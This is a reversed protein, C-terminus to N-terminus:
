SQNNAETGNRALNHGPRTLGLEYIHEQIFHQLYSNGGSSASVDSPVYGLVSTDNGNTQVFVPPIDRAAREEDIGEDIVFNHIRAIAMLLTAANHVCFEIPSRLIRWKTVMIGFAREIKIRLQSIFFNYNDNKKDFRQSGYFPTLLHETM